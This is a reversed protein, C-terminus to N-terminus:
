NDRKKCQKASGNGSRVGLDFIWTHISGKPGYGLKSPVTIRRLEDKCM